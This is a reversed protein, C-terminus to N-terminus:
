SELAWQGSADYEIRTCRAVRVKEAVDIFNFVLQGDHQRQLDGRREPGYLGTAVPTQWDAYLNTAADFTGFTCYWQGASENYLMIVLRADLPLEIVEVRSYGSLGTAHVTFSLEGDESKAQILDDGEGELYFLRCAQGALRSVNISKASENGPVPTTETFQAFNPEWRRAIYYGDAAYYVRLTGDYDEYSDLDTLVVESYVAAEWQREYLRGIIAVGAQYEWFTPV